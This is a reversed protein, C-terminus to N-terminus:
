QTLDKKSNRITKYKIKTLDWITSPPIIKLDGSDIFILEENNTKNCFVEKVENSTYLPKKGSINASTSIVPCQLKSSLKVPFNNNELRISVTDLKPFYESLLAKKKLIFSSPDKQKQVFDKQEKNVHCYKELMKFDSFLLSFAKSNERKKLKMIKEISEKDNFRCAFGYCTDTAHIFIKKKLIRVKKEMVKSEKHSIPTHRGEVLEPPCLKSLV